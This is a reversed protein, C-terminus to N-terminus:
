QPLEPQAAPPTLTVEVSQQIHQALMDIDGDEPEFQVRLGLEVTGGEKLTAKFSNIKAQTVFADDDLGHPITVTYGVLERDLSLPGLKPFRLKTRQIGGEILQKQQPDKDVTYFAESMGPELLDLITNPAEIVLSLDCAPVTDQGHKEGRLNINALKAKQAQFQLM